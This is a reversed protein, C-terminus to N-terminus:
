PLSSAGAGCHPGMMLSENTQGAPSRSGATTAAQSTTSSAALTAALALAVAIRVLQRHSM